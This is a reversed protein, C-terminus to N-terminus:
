SCFVTGSVTLASGGGRSIDPIAFENSSSSVEAKREREREHGGMLLFMM